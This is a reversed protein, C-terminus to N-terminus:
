NASGEKKQLATIADLHTKLVPLTETAFSKLAANDGNESYDEFLAVAEEHAGVQMTVYQLDFDQAEQLEALMQRHKAAPEAPVEIGEQAAIAALKENAPGHDGVMREAFGRLGADKSRDLALESSQVEFMGGSAAQAVFDQADTAAFAPPAALALVLASAM